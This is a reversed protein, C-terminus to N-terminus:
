APAVAGYRGLGYYGGGVVAGIGAAAAATQWTFPSPAFTYRALGVLLASGLGIGAAIYVERSPNPRYRMPYM